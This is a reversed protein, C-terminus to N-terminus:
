KLTIKSIEGDNRDKVGVYSRRTWPEEIFSKGYHNNKDEISNREYGSDESTKWRIVDDSIELNNYEIKHSPSLIYKKLISKHFANLHPWIQHYYSSIRSKM